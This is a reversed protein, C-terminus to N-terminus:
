RGYWYAPPAFSGQAGYDQGAYMGQGNFNPTAAQPAYGQMPAGAYGGYNAPTGAYPYAQPAAYNMWPSNYGYSAQPPFYVYWPQKFCGNCHDCCDACYFKINPIVLPFRPIPIEWCPRYVDYCPYTASAQSSGLAVIALAFLGALMLKKM